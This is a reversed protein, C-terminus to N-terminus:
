ARAQRGHRAAIIGAVAAATGILALGAVDGGTFPLSSEPQKPHATTHSEPVHKIANPTGGNPYQPASIAVATGIETHPATTTTTPVETTTTTEHPATTSTTEHGPYGGEHHHDGTAGAIEPSIAIAGITIAAGASIFELTNASQRESM